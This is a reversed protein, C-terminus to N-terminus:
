PIRVTISDKDEWAQYCALSLSGSASCGDRLDFAVACAPCFVKENMQGGYALDVGYHPCAADVASLAGDRKVILLKRDPLVAVVRQGDALPAELAITALGAVVKAPLAIPPEPAQAGNEAPGATAALHDERKLHLVNTYRGAEIDRASRWFERAYFCDPDFTPQSANLRMSVAVRTRDTVNLHTGHLIEPDFILMDGAGLPVFTPPPLPYDQRLYLTKRDCPLSRDALGPYLVMSAEAPVDCMAWWINLGDRSHGAWSDLHPGHAWAAPPHGRHYGKPDYLPDKVRRSAAIERMWPSVRGIGPNEGSPDANRAVDYPLNIRLILYDDVFFDHSWELVSRGVTVAMDLLQNRLGELVHERVRGLDIPDLFRHLAELGEARLAAGTHDGKIKAVADVIADVIAVHLAQQGPLSDGSRTLWLGQTPVRGDGCSHAAAKPAISTM